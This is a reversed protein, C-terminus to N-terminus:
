VSHSSCTHNERPGHIQLHHQFRCAILSSVVSFLGVQQRLTSTGTVEAMGISQAVHLSFLLFLFDSNDDEPKMGSSLLHMPLSGILRLFDQRDLAFLEPLVHHKLAELCEPKQKLCQRLPSVWLPLNTVSHYFHVEKSSQQRLFKSLIFILRSAPTALDTRSALVLLTSLFKEITAEFLAVSASASFASIDLEVETPQDGRFQHAVSRALVRLSEMDFGQLFVVVDWVLVIEKRIIYELGLLAPKLDSSYSPCQILYLFTLGTHDRMSRAQLPDHWEGLCNVLTVLVQRMSKPKSGESRTLYVRLLAKWTNDTLLCATLEPSSPKVLARDLLGCLVNCAAARHGSTIASASATKLLDM